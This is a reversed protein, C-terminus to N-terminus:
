SSSIAGFTWTLTGTAGQYSNAATSKIRVELCYRLEAGAAGIASAVPSAPLTGADLWAGGAGTLYTGAAINTANCTTTATALRAIRYELVETLSGTTLTRTTATLTVSGAVTTAATTRVNFPAFTSSSPSMGTVATFTAVPPNTNSAWTTRDISSETNFISADFSGAATEQDTWAALTVAAGLGLVLGGALVARLRRSATGAPRVPEAVHRSM